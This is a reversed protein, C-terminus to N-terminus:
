PFIAVLTLITAVEAAAGTISIEPPYLLLPTPDGPLCYGANSDMCRCVDTCTDYPFMVFDFLFKSASLVPTIPGLDWGYREMNLQQFYLRRYIVYNPAVVMQRPEFTRGQYSDTSLVPGEPFTIATGRERYEQRIREFLSEDSQATMAVRVMPPPELRIPFELTDREAAREAVGRDM